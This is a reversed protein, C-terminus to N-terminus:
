FATASRLEVRVTAGECQAVGRRGEADRFALRTSTRSLVELYPDLHATFHGFAERAAAESAYPVVLVTQTASTPLTYDAAVGFTEGRLQLVDGAGLECVSQMGVPGRVIRESGAIRKETPLLDLLAVPADAPLLRQVDNALVRVAPELTPDGTFNNVQVFYRGQQVLVQYANGVNRGAVGAAPQGKGRYYCFLGRAATASTM